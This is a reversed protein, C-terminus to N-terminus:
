VFRLESAVIYIVYILGYPASGWVGLIPQPKTWSAFAKFDYAKQDPRIWVMDPVFGFEM